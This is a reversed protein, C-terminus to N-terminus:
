GFGPSAQSGCALSSGLEYSCLKLEAGIMAVSIGALCVREAGSSDFRPGTKSGKSRDVDSASM